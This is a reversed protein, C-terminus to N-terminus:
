VDFSANMFQSRSSQITQPNIKKQRSLVNEVRLALGNKEGM